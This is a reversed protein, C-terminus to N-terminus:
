RVLVPRCVQAIDIRCTANLDVPGQEFDVTTSFVGIIAAKSAPVPVPTGNFDPDPCPDDEGGSPGGLWNMVYFSAFRLVPIPAGTGSGGVTKLSQYPVVFLSVVRPDKSSGGRQLWGNPDAPRGPMAPTGDYNGCHVDPDNKKKQTQCQVGNDKVCNDTAVFMWDGAQGSKVGGQNLVCRWYNGPSNTYPMAATWSFWLNKDPCGNTWKSPDWWDTNTFENAGFWPQCGFKFLTLPASVAPDCDVLQTGQAGGTRLVTLTGASLASRIGVTPYVACPSVCPSGGASSPHWNDFSAGLNGSADIQALSTHVSEVAGTANPDYSSPEGPNTENSDVGVVTQHTIQTSTAWICPSKASGPPDLCANGRWTHNRNDDYWAVSVQIPTPGAGAAFASGTSAYTATGNTDWSQLALRKGNATVTFNADVNLGGTPDDRDGWDVDVSVDYPCTTKGFPLVGFYSDGAGGCGGLVHVDHVRPEALASSGAWIRIQSLRTFCDAFSLKKLEDCTHADLNVDPSSALRVEEGVPRYEYGPCNVPDYATLPLDVTRSADGVPPNSGPIKVAWLSGGSGSKIGDLPALNETAIVTNSCQDIYRVQVETVVNDPIALPLFRHGSLAPRIEIRARAHLDPSFPGLMRASKRETVKVDTWQAPSASTAHSLSEPDSTHAYCPDGNRTSVNGDNDDTYDQNNTYDNNASNLVVDVRNNLLSGGLASQALIQDNFLTSPLVGAPDINSYDSTEPNGAYQYAANAIKQATARKLTPNAVQACAQWNDAYEVGAAFAAADARNQLQRKHTFWSGADIVLATFLLFVPILVAAMVM